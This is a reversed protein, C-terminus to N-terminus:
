GKNRHMFGQEVSVELVSWQHGHFGVNRKRCIEPWLSQNFVQCSGGFIVMEKRKGCWIIHGQIVECKKRTDESSSFSSLVFLCFFFWVYKALM